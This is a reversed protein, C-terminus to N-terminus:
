STFMYKRDGESSMWDEPYDLTPLNARVMRTGRYEFRHAMDVAKPGYKGLNSLLSNMQM